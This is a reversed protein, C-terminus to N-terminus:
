LSFLMGAAGALLGSLVYPVNANGMAGSTPVASTATIAATPLPTPTLTTSLTTTANITTTNNANGSSYTSNSKCVISGVAVTNTSLLSPSSSTFPLGASGTGNTAQYPTCSISTIDVGSAGTLYLTSVSGLSTPNTYVTGIPVTITNNTLGNGAGGHSAEITIIATPAATALGALAATSVTFATTRM